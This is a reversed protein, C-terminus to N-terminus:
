NTNIRVDQWNENNLIEANEGFFSKGASEEDKLYYMFWATMYGDASHPIDGHDKGTLRGIVKPVDDPMVDYCEELWWLPCIGQTEGDALEIRNEYVNGADANGTGAVMLSPISLTAPNCSWGGGLTDDELLNLAYAVASSTTSQVCIAKYMSGNEQQTVANIAGVGGQSHGTVGINDTDIHGYFVSQPDENLALMFDLTAATSDGTRTQEDENGVVIFGWSALHRFGASSSSAKVGTGNVMLVLPYTDNRSELETPYWVSYKKCADNESDFQVSSVEYSGLAAYKKEIEGKADTYKWYNENRYGAIGLLVTCGGVMLLVFVLVIILVIKIFKM